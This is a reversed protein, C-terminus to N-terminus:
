FLYELVRLLPHSFLLIGVILAQVATILVAGAAVDKAIGALPHIHPKVLDVVVEIATNITEAVIVSGMTLILLLWEWRALGSWWACILVVVGALGHFRMNSQTKWTYGLGRWAQNLSRQFALPKHYNGPKRLM